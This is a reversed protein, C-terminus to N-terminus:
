AGRNKQSGVVGGIKTRMNRLVFAMWLLLSGFLILLLGLLWAASRLAGAPDFVLWLALLLLMVSVGAWSSWSSNGAKRQGLSRMLLLVGSIGVWIGLLEPIVGVIGPKVLLLIGVCLDLLGDLISTSRDPEGAGVIALFLEAVAAFIMAIGLYFVLGAVTSDANFSAFLGFIVLLLGKLALIWWNKFLRLAM